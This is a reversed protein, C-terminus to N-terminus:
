GSDEVPCIDRKKLTLYRDCVSLFRNIDWAAANTRGNKLIFPACKNGRMPNISENFGATASSKFEILPTM